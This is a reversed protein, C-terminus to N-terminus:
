FFFNHSPLYENEDSTNSKVYSFIERVTIDNTINYSAINELYLDHATARQFKNSDVKTFGSSVGLNYEYNVDAIVAATNGFFLPAAAATLYMQGVGHVFTGRYGFMLKDTFQDTPKMLIQFRAATTNQDSLDQGNYINKIF